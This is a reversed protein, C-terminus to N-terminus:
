RVAIPIIRQRGNSRIVVQIVSGPRSEYTDSWSATFNGMATRNGTKKISFSRVMQSTRGTRKHRMQIVARGNAVTANTRGPLWAADPVAINVVTRLRNEVPHPNVSIDFQAQAAVAATLVTAALAARSFNVMTEGQASKASPYTDPAYAPEATVTSVSLRHDDDHLHRSDEERLSPNRTM